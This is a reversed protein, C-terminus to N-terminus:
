IRLNRVALFIDAIRPSRLKSFLPFLIGQNQLNYLNENQPILAPGALIKFGPEPLALSPQVQHNDSKVLVVGDKCCDNATNKTKCCCASHFNIKVLSVQSLHNGCFHFNIAMAFGVSAYILLFVIAIFKRM